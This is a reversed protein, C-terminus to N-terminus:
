GEGNKKRDGSRENEKRAKKLETKQRGCPYAHASKPALRRRLYRYAVM